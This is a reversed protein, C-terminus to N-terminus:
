KQTLGLYFFIFALIALAVALTAYATWAQHGGASKGSM